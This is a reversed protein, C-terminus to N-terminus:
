RLLATEIYSTVWFCKPDTNCVTVLVNQTPLVTGEDVARIEVPLLGGHEKLIYEWGERNFPEGHAAFLIEAEDIDSQTIPTTMYERLFSQLGFYVTEDWKGGRSEIYSYVYETGDPYQVWQSLKYS